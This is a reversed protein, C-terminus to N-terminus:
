GNRRRRWAAVGLLALASGFLPLAAPVPIPRPPVFGSGLTSAVYLAHSRDTFSARFALAGDSLGEGGLHVYNITKGDLMMGVYVVEEITGGAALFTGTSSYVNDGETEFAVSGGDFSIDYFYRFREPSCTDCTIQGGPMVTGREVVVGLTGGVSRYIGERGEGRPTDEHAIEDRGMFAVSGGDRSVHPESFSFFTRSSGPIRTAQDAVVGLTGGVTGYIGGYARFAVTAGGLSVAPNFSYFTGTGGPIPTNRDAVVNLTGGVTSYIGEQRGSGVGLFAVSGGSLSPGNFQTFTGTGGPIPTNRDAVVNLTGGVTSYIGDQGDRGVGRFAVSDGDLSPGNFGTFTGTGGPIPTNTDAVVGLAGGATSYIGRQGFLDGSGSPGLGQFAVNGDRLSPIGLASFNGTGGPIATSADAIKTFTWRDAAHAAGEGACAALLVGIAVGGCLRSLTM